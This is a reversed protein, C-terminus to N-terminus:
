NLCNILEEVMSVSNGIWNQKKDYYDDTFFVTGPESANPCVSSVRPGFDGQEFILYRNYLEIMDSYDQWYCFGYNSTIEDYLKPDYTNCNFVVFQIGRFGVIVDITFNNNKDKVVIRPELIERGIKKEGKWIKCNYNKKYKGNLLELLIGAKEDLEEVKSTLEGM